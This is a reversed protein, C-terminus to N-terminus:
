PLLCNCPLLCDLRLVPSLSPLSPPLSFAHCFSPLSSAHSFALSFGWRVWEDREKGSSLCFPAPWVVAEDTEGSVAAVCQELGGDGERGEEGGVIGGEKGRERGAGERGRESSLPALRVVAEDIEGSVAAVCQELGCVAAAHRRWAEGCDGGLGPGAPGGDCADGGDSGCGGAATLALGRTSPALAGGAGAGARDLACSLRFAALAARLAAM